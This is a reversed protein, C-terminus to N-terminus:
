AIQVPPANWRVFGRSTIQPCNSGVDQVSSSWPTAQSTVTLKWSITSGVIGTGGGGGGITRGGTIRTSAWRVEISRCM